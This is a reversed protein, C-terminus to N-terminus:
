CLPAVTMDHLLQITPMFGHRGVTLMERLTHEPAIFSFRRLSTETASANVSRLSSKSGYVRQLCESSSFKWHEANRIHIEVYTTISLTKSITQRVQRYECVIVSYFNRLIRLIRLIVIGLRHSCFLTGIVLVMQISM